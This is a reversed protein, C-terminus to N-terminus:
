GLISSWNMNFETAQWFKSSLVSSAQTYFASSEQRWSIALALHAITLIAAMSLSVTKSIPMMTHVALLLAFLPLPATPWGLGVTGAGLVGTVVLSAALAALDSRLLCASQAVTFVVLATVAMAVMVLLPVLPVQSFLFM